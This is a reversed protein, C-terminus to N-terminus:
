LCVLGGLGLWQEVKIRLLNLDERTKVLGGKDRNFSGCFTRAIGLISLQNRPTKPIM